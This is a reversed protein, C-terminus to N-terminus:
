VLVIAICAAVGLVFAVADGRRLRLPVVGVHQPGGRAEIAEALDRARRVSAVLATVLLDHLARVRPRFGRPLTPQRLRRAAGLTRMEDLLLPICRASLAVVVVLEDVPVRLRRLPRYIRELAPPLDALPTTWGILLAMALVLLGLVTLRLWQLLGGLGISAHGLHVFPAGGSTIGLVGGILVGIFLWRPPRPLAALPVRSAAFGALLVAAAIAEGKWTPRSVVAISVVAVVLLKTGAWLRHIPGDGPVYRFLHFDGDVALSPASM